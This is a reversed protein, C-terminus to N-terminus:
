INMDLRKKIIADMLVGKTVSKKLGLLKPCKVSKIGPSTMNNMTAADLHIWDADRDDIPQGYQRRVNMLHRAMTKITFSEKFVGYKKALKKVIAVKYNLLIDMNYPIDNCDAHTTIINVKNENIQVQEAVQNSMLRAFELCFDDLTPADYYMDYLNETNFATSLGHLWEEDNTDLANSVPSMNDNHEKEEHIKQMMDYEAQRRALEEAQRRALEEAQRRELEEAEKMARMARKTEARAIRRQDRTSMEILISFFM